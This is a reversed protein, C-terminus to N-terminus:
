SGWFGAVRHLRGTIKQLHGILTLRTRYFWRSYSLHLSRESVPTHIPNSGPNLEGAWNTFGRDSYYFLFAVMLKGRRVTLFLSTHIRTGQKRALIKRSSNYALMESGLYISIRPFLFQELNPSVTKSSVTRVRFGCKNYM